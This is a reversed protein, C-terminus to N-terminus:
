IVHHKRLFTQDKKITLESVGLLLAIESRKLYEVLKPIKEYREKRSIKISILGADDLRNDKRLIRYRFIETDSSFDSSHDRISLPKKHVTVVVLDEGTIMDYSFSKSDIQRDFFIERLKIDLLKRLNHHFSDENRNERSLSSTISCKGFLDDVRNLFLSIEKSTEKDSMGSLWSMERFFNLYATVSRTAQETMMQKQTQRPDKPFPPWQIDSAREIGEFIVDIIPLVIEKVKGLEGKLICNDRLLEAIKEALLLELGSECKSELEEINIESILQSKGETMARRRQIIKLLM